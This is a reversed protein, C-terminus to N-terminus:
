SGRIEDKLKELRIVLDTITAILHHKSPNAENWREDEEFKRVAEDVEEKTVEIKVLTM